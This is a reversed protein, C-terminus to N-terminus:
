PQKRHDPPPTATSEETPWLGDQTALSATESRQEGDPQAPVPSPENATGSPGREGPQDRGSARESPPQEALLYARARFRFGPDLDAAAVLFGCVDAVLKAAVPDFHREAFVEALPIRTKAAALATATEAYRLATQMQNPRRLLRVVLERLPRYYSPLHNINRTDDPGFGRLLDAVIVKERLNAPGGFIYEQLGRDPEGLFAGRIHSTVKILSLLYLWCCDLFLAVHFPNRYDLHKRAEGLHAILQTPNRYEDYIWYDFQRYDVLPQLNRGLDNFAALHSAVQQRDFLIAVEGEFDPGARYHHEQLRGLDDSPLVTVGLRAALQRAGDTVEHERVLYAHDAGFLDAVGRVWFMRSTSERRSTKCDAIETFLRYSGTVGVGLVDLDTFSQAPAKRTALETARSFGRLQVDLRTSLGMSWFLRRIGIKLGLDLESM